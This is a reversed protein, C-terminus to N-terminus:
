HTALWWDTESKDTLIAPNLSPDSCTIGSYQRIPCPVIDRADEDYYCYNDTNVAYPVLQSLAKKTEKLLSANNACRTALYDGLDYFVPYPFGDFRQLGSIQLETLAPTEANVRKMLSAFQDLMDCDILSLTGYPYSYSTYFDKFASIAKEYNPTGLLYKFMTQYPLGAGMIECTSGILKHTCSRMEFATEINAMYCDDFILYKLKGIGAAALGKPLEVNEMRYKDSNGGFTRTHISSIRNKHIWGIAHCGVIMAYDKAPAATQTLAAIKKILTSSTFDLTNNNLTALTDSIIKNSLHSYHYQIFHSVSSDKSVFVVVKDNGMGKNAVIARRISSLNDQLEDTLEGTPGTYPMYILLTTEAVDPEIIDKPQEKSSDDEPSDNSCATFALITLLSFLFAKM